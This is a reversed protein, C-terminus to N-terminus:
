KIGTLKLKSLYNDFLRNKDIYPLFSNNWLDRTLFFIQEEIQSKKYLFITKYLLCYFVLKYPYNDSDENKFNIKESISLVNSFSAVPVKLLIKECLQEIEEVPYKYWNLIKGPTNLLNFDFSTEIGQQFAFQQLEEQSYPIFSYLSGRNRITHLLRNVNTTLIFLYASIPPEELLKLIIGEEKETIEDGNILYFVSIPNLYIDEITNYILKDTIDVYPIDFRKALEAVFFHKGSGIDGELIVTSSLNALTKNEFIEKLKNQGVLM